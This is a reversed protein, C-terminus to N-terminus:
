PSRTACRTLSRPRSSDSRRSSRARRSGRGRRTWPRWRRASSPRPARDRRRAEVALGLLFGLAAFTIAYIGLVAVTVDTGNMDFHIGLLLTSTLDLLGAGAGIALGRWRDLWAWRERPTNAEASIAGSAHDASKSDIIDIPESM